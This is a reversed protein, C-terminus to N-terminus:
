RETDTLNDETDTLNDETDTLNDETDTLRTGYRDCAAPGPQLAARATLRAALPRYTSDVPSVSPQLRQEALIRM